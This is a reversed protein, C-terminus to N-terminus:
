SAVEEADCPCSGDANLHHGNDIYHQRSASGAEDVEDVQDGGGDTEPVPPDDVHVTAVRGAGVLPPSPETGGHLPIAEVGGHHGATERLVGARQRRARQEGRFRQRRGDEREVVAAGGADQVGEVAGVDLDRGLHGDDAEVVGMERPEGVDVEGGHPLVCRQHGPEGDLPGHGSQLSRLGLSRRPVADDRRRQHNAPGRRPRRAAARATGHCGRGSLARRDSWTLMPRRSRRITSAQRPHHRRPAGADGRVRLGCREAAEVDLRGSMVALALNPGGSMRLRPADARGETLTYAFWHMELADDGPDHTMTTLGWLALERLVPELAAGRDTLTYLITAVPPPAADRRVVGLRELQKLRESLLNPAIGPLGRRLDTFRLGGRIVLERVVLLAWRDGVVDLAKAIACNQAYTKM